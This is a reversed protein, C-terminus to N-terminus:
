RNPPVLVMAAIGAMGAILGTWKIVTFVATISTLTSVDATGSTGLLRSLSRRFLVTEAVDAVTGTALLAATSTSAIGDLRSWHPGDGRRAAAVVAFLCFAFVAYGPIYRTLDHATGTKFEAWRDAHQALWKADRSQAAGYAPPIDAFLGVVVLWLQIIVVIAAAAVARIWLRPSRVVTTLWHRV